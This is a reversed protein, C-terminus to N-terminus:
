PERQAVPDPAAHQQGAQAIAAEVQQIMSDLDFLKPKVHFVAALPKEIGRLASERKNCDMLMRLFSADGSRTESIVSTENGGGGRPGAEKTKEVKRVKETQSQHWGAWAAQRVLSVEDLLKEVNGRVLLSQGNGRQELLRNITLNVWDTSRRLVKGIQSALEGLVYRQWVEEDLVPDPADGAPQHGSQNAPGTALPRQLQESM